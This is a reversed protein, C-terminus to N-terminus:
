GWDILWDVLCMNVDSGEGIFAYKSVCNSVNASWVKVPVVKFIADMSKASARENECTAASVRSSADPNRREDARLFTSSQENSIEPTYCPTIDSGM